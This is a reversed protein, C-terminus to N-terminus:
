ELAQILQGLVPEFTAGYWHGDAQATAKICSLVFDSAIRASESASRDKMLAGVFASAFIDGTGHRNYAVKEHGYFSIEGQELVAVGTIGPSYSAGTLIINKSGLQALKQLLLEIYARDYETQFETGTLLCAETINPILYDAKCCLTKMAEVFAKDFGRYLKGHDAMAPDVIKVCGDAALNDFIDTVYGIQRASGLYGSSIADFRIGSEQWHAAIQPMDETLDRFTAGPFATHTSLVASPLVCCEAGCASIIPLAVTLSCQGVCSIDQITLVRKYAM